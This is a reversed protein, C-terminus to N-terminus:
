ICEIEGKKKPKSVLSYQMYTCSEGYRNKSTVLQQDFVYGKRKMESIRTALKTIGLDRFAELPTITSFDTLYKEIREYQTM